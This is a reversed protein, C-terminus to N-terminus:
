LLREMPGRRKSAPSIGGEDDRPPGGFAPCRPSRQQKQSPSGGPSGARLPPIRNAGVGGDNRPPTGKLYGLCSDDRAFDRPASSDDPRQPVRAEGGLM